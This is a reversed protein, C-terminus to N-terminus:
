SQGSGPKAFMKEGIEDFFEIETVKGEFFLKGGRYGTIKRYHMVGDKKQYDSFVVEQMM